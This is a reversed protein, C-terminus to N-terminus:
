VSFTIRLRAQVDNFQLNDADSLASTWKITYTDDATVTASVDVTGRILM